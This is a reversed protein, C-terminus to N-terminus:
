WVTGKSGNNDIIVCNKPYNREKEQNSGGGVKNQNQKPKTLNWDGVSLLALNRDRSQVKVPGCASGEAPTVQRQKLRSLRLLPISFFPHSKVIHIILIQSIPPSFAHISDPFSFTYPHWEM